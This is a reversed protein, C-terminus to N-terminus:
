QGDLLHRLSRQPAALFDRTVQVTEADDYSVQSFTGDLGVQIITAGPIALLIPSHTAILFQSGAITLDHIRALAALAGRPSLAAEPEDMLYLGGARFRYAILDLFSEGHSREHLSRGGYGDVVGLQEIETAVNYFSEARLFFSTRERLGPTRAIRLYRGLVSETGRTSFRFNRSGGEPNFGAAVAVAEVLTSKGSGNDGVLFTVGAPLELGGADRLGAVVPLDFPYAAVDLGCDEHDEAMGTEDVSIRRLFRGPGRPM